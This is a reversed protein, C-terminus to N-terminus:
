ITDVDYKFDFKMNLRFIQESFFFLSLRLIVCGAAGTWAAEAGTRPREGWEKQGTFKFGKNVRKRRTAETLQQCM